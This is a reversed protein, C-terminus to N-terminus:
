VVPIDWVHKLEHLQAKYCVRCHDWDGCVVGFGVDLVAVVPWWGCRYARSSLMEYRRSGRICSNLLISTSLSINHM